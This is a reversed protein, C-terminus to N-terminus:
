KDKEREGECVYDCHINLQGGGKDPKVISINIETMIMM